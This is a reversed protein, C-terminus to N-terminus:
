VFFVALHISERKCENGSGARWYIIEVVQTIFISRLSISATV